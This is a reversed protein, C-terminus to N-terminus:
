AYKPTIICSKHIYCVFFHVSAEGKTLDEM